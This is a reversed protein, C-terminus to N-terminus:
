KRDTRSEGILIKYTCGYKQAVINCAAWTKSMELQLAPSPTCRTRNFESATQPQPLGRQIAMSMAIDSWSPTPELMLSVAPFPWTCLLLLAQITSLQGHPKAVGDWALQTVASSLVRLLTIDEDYRRSAVSIITWFLLISQNYCDVPSRRDLFPLHPHYSTFFSRVMLLLSREHKCSRVYMDFLCEIQVEDLEVLGLKRKLTSCSAREPSLFESRAGSQPLSHRARDPPHQEPWLPSQQAPQLPRGFLPLDDVLSLSTQAPPETQGPINQAQGHSGFCENIRKELEDIRRRSM